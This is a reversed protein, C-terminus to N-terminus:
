RRPTRRRPPSPRPARPSVLAVRLASPAATVRLRAAEGLVDGDVQCPVPRDATVDVLRGRYRDVYPERRSGVVVEAMMHLVDRAHRPSAALVDLHGDAADAEPMLALGPRLEGVNGIGVFSAYGWAPAGGDVSIGTRVPRATVHRLGAVLYAGAGLIRKLPERTDTLVAADAGMGAMVLGLEERGAAEVRLVDLPVPTGGFAARAADVVDRPLRLNRALLDGSGFPLVGLTAPGHALSAAASRLTGDGGAVLILDAGAELARRAAGAGPDDLTTSFWGVERWRNTAAEARLIRRLLWPDRVRAPNVVVAYRGPARAAGRAPSTLLLSLACALGAVLSGAMVDTVHHVHLLLRDAWIVLVLLAGVAAVVIRGRRPLHAAGAAAALGLALCTLASAHGSPYSATPDLGGLWPTDPRARRVTAKLVSTFAFTLASSLLLHAALRDLRRRGAWWAVLILAAYSVAPQLVVAGIRGVTGAASGPPPPPWPWLADLPTPLWATWLGVALLLVAAAWAHASRM